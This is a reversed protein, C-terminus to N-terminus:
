PGKYIEVEMFNYYLNTYFNQIGNRKFMSNSTFFFFAAKFRFLETQGFIFNNSM